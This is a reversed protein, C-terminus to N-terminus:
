KSKQQKGEKSQVSLVTLHFQNSLAVGWTCGCGEAKLPM